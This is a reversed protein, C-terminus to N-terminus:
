LSYVEAIRSAVSAHSLLVDVPARGWLRGFIRVFKINGFVISDRGFIQVASLMAASVSRAYVRTHACMRAYVRATHTRSIHRDKNTEM